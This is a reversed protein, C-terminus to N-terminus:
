FTQSRCLFQWYLAFFLQLVGREVLGVVCLGEFLHVSPAVGASASQHLLFDHMMREQGAQVLALELKHLLGKRKRDFLQENEFSVVVLLKEQRGQALSFLELCVQVSFVQSLQFHLHGVVESLAHVTFVRKKPQLTCLRPLLHPFLKALGDGVRLDVVEHGVTWCLLNKPIKKAVFPKENFLVKRLVIFVDDM